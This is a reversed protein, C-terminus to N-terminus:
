SVAGAWELYEDSFLAGKVWQARSTLSVLCGDTWRAQSISGVVWEVEPTSAVALMVPETIIAHKIHRAIPHDDPVTFQAGGDRQEWDEVYFAAEHSPYPLVRVITRRLGQTASTM